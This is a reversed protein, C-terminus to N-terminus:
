RLERPWGQPRCKNSRSLRHARLASTADYIRSQAIGFREAARSRDSQASRERRGAVAPWPEPAGVYPRPAGTDRIRRRCRVMVEIGSGSMAQALINGHARVGHRTTEMMPIEQCWGDRRQTNASSLLYKRSHNDVGMQRALMEVITVPQTRHHGQRGVHRSRHLHRKALDEVLHDIHKSSRMSGSARSSANESTASHTRAIAIARATSSELSPSTNRSAPTFMHQRSGAPTSSSASLTLARYWIPNFRLARFQSWNPVL